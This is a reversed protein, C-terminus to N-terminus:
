ILVSFVAMYGSYSKNQKERFAGTGRGSSDKANRDLFLPSAFPSNPIETGNLTECLTLFIDMARDNTVVNGGNFQNQRNPVVIQFAVNAFGRYSDIAVIDDFFIRVQPTAVSYEEDNYKQFLVNKSAVVDAKYYDAPDNCVMQAKEADTPEVMLYPYDGPATYKLLKWLNPANHFLYDFLFSIGNKLAPFANYKNCDM